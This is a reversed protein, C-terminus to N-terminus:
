FLFILFSTSFYLFFVKLTIRNALKPLKGMFTDGFLSGLEDEAVQSRRHAGKQRKNKRLLREEGQFEADAEARVEEREKRSLMSGGGKFDTLILLSFLFSVDLLTSPIVVLLIPEGVNKLFFIVIEDKFVLM